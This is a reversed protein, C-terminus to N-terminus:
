GRADFSAYLGLAWARRDAAKVRRGLDRPTIKQRCSFGRHRMRACISAATRGSPDPRCRRRGHADRQCFWDGAYVAQLDLVSQAEYRRVARWMIAHAVAFSVEPKCLQPDDDLGPWKDRHWRLSLGMAGLGHENHGLTHRVGARGGSERVVVADAFACIIPSAGAARCARRVRLRTEQRLHRPWAPNPAGPATCRGMTPGPPLALPPLTGALTASDAPRGALAALLLLTHIM